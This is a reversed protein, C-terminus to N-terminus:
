SAQSGLCAVSRYLEHSPSSRGDRRLIEVVCRFHRRLCAARGHCYAVLCCPPSGAPMGGIPPAGGPSGCGGPRGAFYDRRDLRAWLRFHVITRHNGIRPPETIRLGMDMVNQTSSTSGDTCRSGSFFMSRAVSRPRGTVRPGAHRHQRRSLRHPAAGKRSPAEAWSRRPRTGAEPIRQLPESSAGL